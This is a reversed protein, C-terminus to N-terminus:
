GKRMAFGLRAAPVFAKRAKTGKAPKGGGLPADPITVQVGLARGFACPAALNSLEQIAIQIRKPDTKIFRRQSNQLRQSLVDVYYKKKDEDIRDIGVGEAREIDGIIRKSYRIATKPTDTPPVALLSRARQDLTGKALLLEVAKHIASVAVPFGASNLYAFTM